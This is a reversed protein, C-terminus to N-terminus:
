SKGWFTVTIFQINYLFHIEFDGTISNNSLILYRSSYLRTSKLPSTINLYLEDGFSELSITINFTLSFKISLEGIDGEPFYSLGYEMAFAFTDHQDLSSISDTFILSLIPTTITLFFIALTLGLGIMMGKELIEGM